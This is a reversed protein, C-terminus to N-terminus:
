SGGATLEAVWARLRPLHEEEHEAGAKRVWADAAPTSTVLRAWVTLMQSRASVAQMWATTWDQDHFAALYRANLADIDRPEDVETGSEIRLLHQEADAMWAGLHAVLEKVSWDPDRFYGHQERDAESLGRCITEIESWRERELDLEAAYPHDPAAPPVAPTSPMAGDDMPDCGPARGRPVRAPVGLVFIPPAVCSRAV